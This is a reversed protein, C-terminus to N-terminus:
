DGTILPALVLLFFFLVILCIYYANKSIFDLTQKRRALRYEYVEPTEPSAVAKPSPVRGILRPLWQPYTLVILGSLVLAARAWWSSDLWELFPSMVVSWTSIDDPVGAWGIFESACVYIWKAVTAPRKWM